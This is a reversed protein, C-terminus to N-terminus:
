RPKRLVMDFVAVQYDKDIFYPSIWPVDRERPLFTGRQPRRTIREMLYGPQWGNFLWALEQESSFHVRGVGAFQGDPYNTHTNAEVYEGRAMESHHTSFWDASLFLGGPKLSDWVLGLCRKISALENHPISARDLVVDFDGGFPQEKTFDGCHFHAGEVKRAVQVADERGEIGYYEGGASLILQASLGSASGLELVRQGKVSGVFTSVLWHMQATMGHDPRQGNLQASNWERSFTM